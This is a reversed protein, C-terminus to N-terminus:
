YLNRQVENSECEGHSVRRLGGATVHGLVSQAEGSFFFPLFFVHSEM